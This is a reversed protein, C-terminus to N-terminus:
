AREKLQAIMADCVEDMDGVIGYTCYGFIAAEPDRNVAVIVDSDTIGTVHNVAGSVGFAIYVRSKVVVGSQGIVLKYPLVGRDFVPRTCGLKGGLLAALERYRGLADAGKLGNGVCVIYEADAINLSEDLEDPQFSLVKTRIKEVPFDVTEEILECSRAGAPAYKFTGPRITGVQPRMVPVTIVAMMKGGVAPEIFEIDGSKPDYVLQTADSTCGTPLRCAFRPAFDRGDITGGVLVASPRYKRCLKTFLEAYADVSFFEYGTGSVRILKDVGCALIRDIESQPLEGVVVACLKEGAADCLKRTECCLELSVPATKGGSHEIYVWMDKFENKNM